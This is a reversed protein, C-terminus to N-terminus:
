NHLETLAHRQVVKAAKLLEKVNRDWGAYASYGTWDPDANKDILRRMGKVIAEKSDPIIVEGLNYKRVAQLMPSEASSVLVAKRVAAALNLVGSQSFFSSSYTLAVYDCGYFYGSVQSEEIFGEVFYCRNETGLQVALNKYFEVPRDIASQPRGAIVLFADPVEAVARILLDINKNDRIFGFSLFVCQGNEVGWLRRLDEISHKPVQLEYVGVPVEVVHLHSPIRAEEPPTSHVLGVNIFSYGCKVSWKHWWANGIQYNRVPDHLNAVCVAGSMRIAKRIAWAWLPAFYERYSDLLVVTPRLRIIQVALKFYNLILMYLFVMKRLVSIRWRNPQMEFLIRKVPFSLERGTLFEPPVLCIVQCGLQHSIKAQYYVHEALGGNSAACFILVREDKQM